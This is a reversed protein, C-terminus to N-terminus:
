GLSTWVRLTDDDREIAEVLEAIHEEADEDVSSPETPRYVIESSLLSQCAEHGTLSATLKALDPPECVLKHFM